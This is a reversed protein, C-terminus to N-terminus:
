RLPLDNAVRALNVYFHIYNKHTPKAACYIGTPYPTQFFGVTSRPHPHACPTLGPPPRLAARKLTLM